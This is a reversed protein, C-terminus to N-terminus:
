CLAKFKNQLEFFTNKLFSDEEQTLNGETKYQLMELTDLLLKAQKLNKQKENTIPNPNEGMFILAQYSISAIYNLFNVEM